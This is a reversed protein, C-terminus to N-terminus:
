DLFHLRQRLKKLAKRSRSKVTGLPINLQKAIQSQSAGKYYAIELVERERASLTSLAEQVLQAQEDHSVEDLPLPTDQHTNSFRQWRQLFRHRSGRRRVRDIARSRVMTMLFSKLSGRGPQYSNKQWLTVFVDQTVDEAEDRTALIKYALSYVQVSYRGYLIDLAVANGEQLVTWLDDDSLHNLSITKESVPFESAM